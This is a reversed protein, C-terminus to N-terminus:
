SLQIITRNANIAPKEATECNRNRRSGGPLRLQVLIGADLQVRLLRGENLGANQSIQLAARRPAFGIQGGVSQAFDLVVDHKILLDFEGAALCRQRRFHHADFFDGFPQFEVRVSIRKRRQRIGIRLRIRRRWEASSGTAAAGAGSAMGFGGLSFGALALGASLGNDPAM